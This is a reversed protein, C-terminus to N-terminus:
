SSYLPRTSDISSRRVSGHGRDESNMNTAILHDVLECDVKDSSDWGVSEGISIVSFAESLSTPIDPIACAGLFSSSNPVSDSGATHAWVQCALPIQLVCPLSGTHRSELAVQVRNESMATQLEQKDARKLARIDGCIRCVGERALVLSGQVFYPSWQYRNSSIKAGLINLSSHCIARAALRCCYVMLRQVIDTERSVSLVHLPPLEPTLVLSVLLMLKLKLCLGPPCVHVGLKTAMAQPFICPSSQWKAFVRQVSAPLAGILCAPDKQRIFNNVEFMYTINEDKHVARQTGVLECYQGLTVESCLDDRIIISIAQQRCGTQLYNTNGKLLNLPVIEAMLKESLTRQSQVEKLAAGCACCNFGHGVMEKESAGPIHVRVYKNGYHGECEENPCIYRTSKTYKVAATVGSVVGCLRTLGKYSLQKLGFACFDPLTAATIRLAIAIRTVETTDPIMRHIILM